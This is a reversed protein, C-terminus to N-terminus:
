GIWQFNSNTANYKRSHCEQPFETLFLYFFCWLPEISGKQYLSLIKNVDCVDEAWFFTNSYIKKNAWESQPYLCLCVNAPVKRERIGSYINQSILHDELCKTQVFSNWLHRDITINFNHLCINTQWANSIIFNSWPYPVVKINM